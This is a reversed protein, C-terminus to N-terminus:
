FFRSRNKGQSVGGVLLLRVQCLCRLSVHSVADDIALGIPTVCPSVVYRVSVCGDSSEVINGRAKRRMTVM